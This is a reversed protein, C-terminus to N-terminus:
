DHLLDFTLLETQSDWTISDQEGWGLQSKILYEPKWKLLDSCCMKLVIGPQRRTRQFSDFVTDKGNMKGTRHPRNWTHVAEHLNAIALRGNIQPSNSLTGTDRNIFYSGQYQDLAVFVIGDLNEDKNVSNLLSIDTYVESFNYEQIKSDRDSCEAPYLIPKGVFDIGRAQYSWREEKPRKEKDYSWAFNNDIYKVFDPLTLDMRKESQFYSIHEIRLTNGEVTWYVNFLGKLYEFLRQWTVNLITANQTAFARVIDSKQYITIAQYGDLAALYASNVPATGDPNIGFFDSVVTLGCNFQLMFKELVTNLLMGNDYKLPTKGEAGVIIYFLEILQPSINTQELDLITPVPRVWGSGEQIWGEGPPQTAGESYERVWTTRVNLNTSGDPLDALIEVRNRYVVWGQGTLCSGNTVEEPADEQDIGLQINGECTQFQLTGIFTKGEVTDPRPVIDLLNVLDESQELLCTLSDQERVPFTVRKHSANWQGDTLSIYGQFILNQTGECDELIQIPIRTCIQKNRELNYFVCFDDGLFTLQTDLKKVFGVSDKAKEWTFALTNTAPVMVRDGSPFTLLFTYKSLNM